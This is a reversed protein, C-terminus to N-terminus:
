ASDLRTEVINQQFKMCQSFISHSHPFPKFNGTLAILASFLQITEFLSFVSKFSVIAVLHFCSYLKYRIQFSYVTVFNV